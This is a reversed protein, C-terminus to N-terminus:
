ENLLWKNVIENYRGDQKMKRLEDDFKSAILKLEPYPSNKAFAMPYGKSFLVNDYSTITNEFGLKRVQYHGSKRDIPFLDFRRKHLKKFNLAINLGSALQKNLQTQAKDKYPFAQWFSHHYSNGAIIGIKLALSKAQQYGVEVAQKNDSRTFFVFESLWMNEKPFFLYNDREKNRSVSLAADADGNELMKQARQWPIILFESKIGLKSFIHKAIDIDIGVVDGDKSLMEYPPHAEGIILLPRTSAEVKFATFFIIFCYSLLKQM